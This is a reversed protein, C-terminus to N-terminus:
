ALNRAKRLQDAGQGLLRMMEEVAYKLILSKDLPSLKLQVDAKTLPAMLGVHLRAGYKSAQEEYRRRAFPPMRLLDSSGAGRSDKLTLLIALHRYILALIKLPAEGGSLLAQLAAHCEKVRGAFIQDVVAFVDEETVKILLREVDGLSVAPAEGAFLCIQTVTLQLAELSAGVWELIQEVVGPDPSKGERKFCDRIWSLCEESACPETEIWHAAKKLAKVWDLRGDLKEDDLLFVTSPSPAKLYGILEEGEKKRIRSVDRLLVARKETFCPYQRCADVVRAMADEGAQFSSFNMDRMGTGLARGVINERLKRRLYAEPGILAIVPELPIKDATKLLHLSM